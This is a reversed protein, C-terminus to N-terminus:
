SLSKRRPLTMSSPRSGLSTFCASPVPEATVHVTLRVLSFPRGLVARKQAASRSQLTPLLSQHTPAESGSSRGTFAPALVTHLAGGARTHREGPRQQRLSACPAACRM